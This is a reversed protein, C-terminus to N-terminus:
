GKSLFLRGMEFAVLGFTSYGCFQYPGKPQLRRIEPVFLAALQEVTPYTTANDLNPWYIEYVPQDEPLAAALDRAGPPGPFFCILPPKTGSARLPRLYNFENINHGAAVLSQDGAVKKSNDISHTIMMM